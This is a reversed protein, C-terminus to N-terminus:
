FFWRPLHEAVCDHVLRGASLVVVGGVKSTLNFVSFEGSSTGVLLSTGAADVVGQQLVPFVRRTSLSGESGSTCDRWSLGGNEVRYAVGGVRRVAAGVPSFLSGCIRPPPM